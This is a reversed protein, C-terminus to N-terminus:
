RPMWYYELRWDFSGFHNRLREALKWYDDKELLTWKISKLDSLGPLISLSRLLIGDIPPHISSSRYCQGKNCLIVSTKLYISILKSARGYTVTQVGEAKLASIIQEAWRQHLTAFQEVSVENDDQAFRQLSSQEIAYKIKATTTFDRQVARAATWTAYNHRHQDFTYNKM